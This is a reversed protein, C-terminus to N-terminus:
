KLGGVKGRDLFSRVFIQFDPESLAWIWVAFRKAVCSSQSSTHASSEM